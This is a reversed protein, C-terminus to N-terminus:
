SEESNDSRKTPQDVSAKTPSIMHGMASMADQLKEQRTKDKLGQLMNILAQEQERAQDRLRQEHARLRPVSEAMDQGDLNNFELIGQRQLEDKRRRQELIDPASMFSQDFLLNFSVIGVAVSGLLAKGLFVFPPTAM